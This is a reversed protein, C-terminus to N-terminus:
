LEGHCDLCLTIRSLSRRCFPDFDKDTETAQRTLRPAPTTAALCSRSFIALTFLFATQCTLTQTADKSIVKGSAPNIPRRHRSEHRPGRRAIQSGSVGTPLTILVSSEKMM